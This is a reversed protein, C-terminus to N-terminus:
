LPRSRLLDRIETLLQQDATLEPAVPEEAVEVAADKKLGNIWKVVLFISFAVLLFSLLANALTGWQLVVAGAEQAASLTAYPGPAAGERLVTYVNSFDIGGTLFGVLPMVIGDVLSSVIAGFAAGVVLGVALDIVNGKVAFEKFEKWM